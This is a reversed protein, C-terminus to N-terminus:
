IVNFLKALTAVGIVLSVLSGGAVWGLLNKATKWETEMRMYSLELEVHSDNLVNYSKTLQKFHGVLETLTTEIRAIAIANEHSSM